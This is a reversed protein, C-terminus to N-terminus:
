SNKPDALLCVFGVTAPFIAGFWHVFALAVGIAFFAGALIRWGVHSLAEGKSNLSAFGRWAMTSFFIVFVLPFSFLIWGKADAGPDSILRSFIMGALMGLPTAIIALVASIL